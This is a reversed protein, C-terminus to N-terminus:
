TARLTRPARSPRTSSALAVHPSVQTYYHWMAMGKGVEPCWMCLSGEKCYHNGPEVRNFLVRDRFALFLPM